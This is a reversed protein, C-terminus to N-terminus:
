RVTLSYTVTDASTAPPLPQAEIRYRGRELLRSEVEIKLEGTELVPLEKSLVPALSDHEVRYITLAYTAAPTLGVDLSMPVLQAGSKRIWVVDPQGSEGRKLEFRLTTPVEDPAAQHPEKLFIFTAIVSAFLVTAAVAATRIRTWRSGTETLFPQVEGRRELERFGEKMAASLEVETRFAPDEVIRTEVM